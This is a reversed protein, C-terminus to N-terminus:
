YANLACPIHKKRVRISSELRSRQSKVQASLAVNLAM